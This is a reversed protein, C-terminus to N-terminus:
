LSTLGWAHSLELAPFHYVHEWSSVGNRPQQEVLAHSSPHGVLSRNAALNDSLLCLAVTKMVVVDVVVLVAEVEDAVSALEVEDVVAVAM